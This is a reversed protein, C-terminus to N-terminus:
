NSQLTVVSNAAKLCDLQIVKLAVHLVLHEGINLCKRVIVAGCIASPILFIKSLTTYSFLIMKIELVCLYSSFGKYNIMRLRMLAKKVVAGSWNM